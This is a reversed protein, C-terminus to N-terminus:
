NNILKDYGPINLGLIINREAVLIGNKDRKTKLIGSGGRGPQDKRESDSLIPDDDFLYEDIWYVHGDGERIIPHIHAPNGGMPYAGPRLTYFKYKGDASTKIWGRIYGHRKGWDKEDGRVSYEGIQDTHYVYLIVDKAPTKGDHKYITGSVELKPGRENFDPLTDIWNLVKNLNKYELVAECDECRGGVPKLSLTASENKPNQTCASNCAMCLMTLVILKRM